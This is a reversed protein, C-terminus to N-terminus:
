QQPVEILLIDGENQSIMEIKKGEPFIGLADRRELSFEWIWFSWSINMVYVINKNLYPSYSFIEGPQTKRRSIYADQNIYAINSDQTPGSLLVWEWIKLTYAVQSYQPAINNKRTHIWIQFLECTESTSENIESHFIGTGASMSQVEWSKVEGSNGMSDKHSITGALPITIIEMNAHQHMGFGNKAAIVDDNIVRLTGFGMKQPDYYDAFSFSFSSKLWGIDSKWRSSASFFQPLSM